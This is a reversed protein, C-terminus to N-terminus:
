AAAPLLASGVARHAVASSRLPTSVMPVKRSLVLDVAALASPRDM